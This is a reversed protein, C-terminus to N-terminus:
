ITKVVESNNRLDNAIYTMVLLALIDPLNSM